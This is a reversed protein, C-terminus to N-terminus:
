NFDPYQQILKEKEGNIEYLVLLHQNQRDFLVLPIYSKLQNNEISKAAIIYNKYIGEWLQGIIQNTEEQTFSPLPETNYKYLRTLPVTFYAENDIHFYHILQKWSYVLQQHTTHELLTAWETEYENEPTKFSELATNPSDIVYLQDYTMKQISKIEDDPYHVEGHHISISQFFTSDESYINEKIQITDTNEVWKSRVGRLIGNNFLLSADQRLYLKKDTKSRVKWTIEYSDNTKESILDLSTSAKKFSTGEDMPFYTISPISTKQWIFIFALLGAFLILVLTTKRKNM